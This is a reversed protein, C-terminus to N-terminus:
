RVLRFYARGMTWQIRQNPAGNRTLGAV